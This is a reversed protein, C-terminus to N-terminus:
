CSPREGVGSFLDWVSTWPLERINQLFCTRHSWPLEGKRGATLFRQEKEPTGQKGGLDLNRQPLVRM